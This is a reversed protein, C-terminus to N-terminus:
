ASAQASRHDPDLRLLQHTLCRACMGYNTATSRAPERGRGAPLSTLTVPM